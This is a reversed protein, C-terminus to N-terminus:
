LLPGAFKEAVSEVAANGAELQGVGGVSLSPAPPSQPPRHSEPVKSDTLEDAPAEEAASPRLKLKDRKGKEVAPTRRVM